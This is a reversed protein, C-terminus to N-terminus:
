KGFIMAEMKEFADAYMDMERAVYALAERDLIEEILPIQKELKSEDIEVYCLANVVRDVSEYAMANINWLQKVIDNLELEPDEQELFDTLIM